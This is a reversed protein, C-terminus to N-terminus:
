GRKRVASIAKLYVANSPIVPGFGNIFDADGGRFGTTGKLRVSAITQGLRPNTWEYAFFTVARDGAGGLEVADAGYCYDKASTRAAWNWEQINVGYRIPVTIVFGDAYVVEYWGLLDATDEQDYILRFSEKNTAPRAAAHLFILSTADIGIPIDGSERPLGTKGAGDTGVIVVSQNANASLDFPITGLSVTGTNMATLDVGLTKETLGANFSKAISVPEITRETRSPPPEGRFHIRIDPAMQQVLASLDRGDIAEGRWLGQACGLLDALVDKGFGVENTAFWASPAGGLISHRQIRAAFNKMGPSFNGYIEEFGMAELQAEFGEAQKANWDSDSASWFWNFILIDKPILRAVQERTMGGSVNYAFGDPAKKKQLGVGRVGELLMDGWVAMRVGKGALYDHIKRVDEGYRERIDKDRCRPCLGVPQFLEDHGAHVLRPKLLDIYEDYVDFLLKYSEPNSPCYTDPWLEGPVESLEPHTSLLYYSHTFSPLEPVFEIHFERVYRALDAVEEKELFGGDATDQHSSNIEFDHPTGPPYNRRWYNTERSFRVWGANLEPHRELRMSANMEVILTNYKYLVLTDRVFRKFFPINSRGPLYLKFARFPKVPWDRIEYGALHVVGSRQVALQRLSQLGYFAGRDDSGAVVVIDPGTRLIYGESGPNRADVKLAHGACYEAVLPSSFAGMVILKRAPALHALRAIKLLLDFRDGLEEALMRALFLDEHSPSAPIAIVSTQDLVFDGAAPSSERPAPFIPGAAAASAPASLGAMAIVIGLWLVTSRQKV